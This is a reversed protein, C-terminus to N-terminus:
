PTHTLLDQRSSTSGHLFKDSFFFSLEEMGSERQYILRCPACLHNALARGHERSGSRLLSIRDAVPPPEIVVVHALYDVACGNVRVLQERRHALRKTVDDVLVVAAIEVSLSALSPEGLGEQEREAARVSEATRAVELVHEGKHVAFPDVAHSRRDMASRRAVYMATTPAM